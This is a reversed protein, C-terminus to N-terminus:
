PAGASVRDFINTGILDQPSDAGFLQVAAQNVYEITDGTHVLIGEPLGNVLRQFRQSMERITQEAQKRETIDLHTGIARVLNGDADCEVASGRGVIWRWDGDKARYRFEITFSDGQRTMSDQVTQWARDRDEPHVLEFWKDLTMPFEDPRYGLMTYCRPSWVIEGSAVNWDWLGDETAEMALRLREESLALAQLAMQRESTDNFIAVVLGSPLKYVYNEVWLEVRGDQYQTLPHHASRGTRWVEGLVELLGMERVYPFVESVRRGSVESKTVRTLREAAQNLDVFTFDAGNDVARYIAVGDAMNDFLQQLRLRTEKLEGATRKWQTVDRMVAKIQAHHRDVPRASVDVEVLRGQAGRLRTEYRVQGDAALGAMANAFAARGDEAILDSMSKTLLEGHPWGLMQCARQNADLIRGQPAHVLVADNSYLFLDRYKEESRRLAEEAKRREEVEQHLRQNTQLLERARRSVQHDLHVKEDKLMRAQLHNELVLALMRVANRVLALTDRPAMAPDGTLSMWGFRNRHTAVVLSQAEGDPPEHDSYVLRLGSLRENLAETFGRVIEREDRMQSLNLMLQIIDNALLLEM